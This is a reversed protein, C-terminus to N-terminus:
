GRWWYCCWADGMHCCLRLALSHKGQIWSPLTCKLCLTVKGQCRRYFSYSSRRGCLGWDQPREVTALLSNGSWQLLRRVALFWTITSCVLLQKPKRRKSFIPIYHQVPGSLIYLLFELDLFCSDTLVSERWLSVCHWREKDWNLILVRGTDNWSLRGSKCYGSNGRLVSGWLKQNM